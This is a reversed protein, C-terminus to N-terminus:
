GEGPLAGPNGEAGPEVDRRPEVFIQRVEPFEQRIRSEVREIVREVEDTELDAMSVELSLLVRDPGVHMSMMKGVNDIGDVGITLDSIQGEIAPHLPEGVLLGKSEYLLVSAVVCLIVGITVSAAGDLVPMELARSFYLGGLAVVLGALAATDEFLVAFLTPDKTGRIFDWSSSTGKASKFEKWAIWWVVAEFVIALLLVIYSVTPDGPEAPHLIHRIGEYISVGGGLGFILVAVMLTYFYVEKGYGFPHKADPPRSGRKLGLLLLGGNGTDVLSHIGESLMAASGSIAAGVFKSISIALNGVIAAYIAKKSSAM